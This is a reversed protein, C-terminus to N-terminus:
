LIVRPEPVGRAIDPAIDPAAFTRGHDPNTARDDDTLNQWASTCFLTTLDPGGFAPCTTQSAPFAVARLFKGARDYAAVRGAGYQACWFNGDADIVAGDPKLGDARLDLWPEPTASPWGQADLTVRMVTKTTTDCFHAFGGEPDFCCANPVSLGDYLKRLEGKYYRYFAGKGASAMKDMTSIWFGGFPDARGDNPRTNPTDPELPAIETQQSSAIDFTMLRTETAILLTDRDVWGAASANEGISWSLSGAETQSLLHGSRIDFWFLQQREPHWLPGEGLELTRTDFIM